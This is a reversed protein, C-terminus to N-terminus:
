YTNIFFHGLELIIIIGGLVVIWQFFKKGLKLDHNSAIIRYVSHYLAAALMIILIVVMIWDDFPPAFVFPTTLTLFIFVPLLFATLTASGSFLAWLFSKSLAPKKHSTTNM